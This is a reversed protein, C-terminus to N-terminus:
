PGQVGDVALAALLAAECAEPDPPSGHRSCLAYPLRYGKPVDPHFGEDAIYCALIGVRDSGCILCGRQAAWVLASAWSADAESLEEPRLLGSFVAGAREFQRRTAEAELWLLLDSKASV